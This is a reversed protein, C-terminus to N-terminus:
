LDLRLAVKEVLAGWTPANCPDSALRTFVACATPSRTRSSNSSAAQNTPQPAGTRAMAHSHEVVRVVVHADPLITM